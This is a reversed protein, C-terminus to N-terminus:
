AASLFLVCRETERSLFGDFVFCQSFCIVHFWRERGCCCVGLGLDWTGLGLDWTGLGLDWAGLGKGGGEGGFVTVLRCIFLIDRM